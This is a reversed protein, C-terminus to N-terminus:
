VRLVDRSFDYFGELISRQIRMVKSCVVSHGCARALLDIPKFQAFQRSFVLHVAESHCQGWFILSFLQSLFDFSAQNFRDQTLIM